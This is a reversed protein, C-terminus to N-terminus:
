KSGAKKAMKGPSSRVDAKRSDVLAAREQRLLSEGDVEQAIARQIEEQEYEFKAQLASMEARHLAQKRELDRRMLVLKQSRILAESKEQTERALRASGTLVGGPGLYVDLLKFGNDTLRFERIQESHGMGRSKAVYLTRNREGGNENLRLIIWTDALSSLGIQTHQAETGGSTLDTCVTTILEGKLYDILRMLMSKVDATNGVSVLNSMPDMVLAAPKFEDVAKHIEMLHAELGHLTPRVARFRLLDKKAWKELDIGISKMNRIIQSPSEEFCLYVAREGRSCVSDAFHAAISTKGTGATGSVLVTSGKYYGQGSLMTDLRDIGTSIRELTAVQNLGLSTIPLISFGDRTILFPYEDAGHASGRYKVIRLRRTSLQNEVRHDLVIVCDAIYEELGHRTFTNQGREATIVATIGKDKLWRFLRRLEARLIGENSFGSFLAEITDLVVRKAKVQKVAMDLRIFLGELDYEGTEEIEKRDVFVHDMAIKNEALLRKLGFDDSSFNELLDKETEEFSVLVGPENYQLAGRVLFEMGLFTKGCGASGCVLTPRGEPLGGGTIEDLGKIGTPTKPLTVGSSSAKRAKKMTAM